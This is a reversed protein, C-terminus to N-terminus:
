YTSIQLLFVEVLSVKFVEDFTTPSELSSFLKGCLNNNILVCTEFRQLAKRFLEEALIFNDFDLNCLITYGPPNQPLSKPGNSFVPNGKIPFTSLANPLFM